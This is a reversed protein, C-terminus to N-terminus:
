HANSYKATQVFKTFAEKEREVVQDNGMLKYFWTEAGQPVIAGVLRAKQGSRADAGSFDVLSAKGGAVDVSTVAKALDAEPMEGLGLQQRWRNINGALGGGTGASRSINIAAQADNAGTAVFKAVLFPGGAVEKWAAPIEWTPRDEAPGSAPAATSAASLLSNDGIPPHSAPLASPAAENTPFSVSKLFAVFAPKQQVVLEDDGNLKFFWAVNDRRLIAALIRTKDGSGPNEGGQDFLQAPLGAVEVPEALKALEQENVAPLGVTSRWRNVNELDRGMLGPLPVVGLDAQRGEKGKIRFSAVRMEGPPVEEWGEPKQYALQPMASSTDPHGAPMGSVDPHGPPMAPSAANPTKQVQYSEVKDGGCGALALAGLLALSANPM